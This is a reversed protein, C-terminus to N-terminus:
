MGGDEFDLMKFYRGESDVKQNYKRLFDYNMFYEERM